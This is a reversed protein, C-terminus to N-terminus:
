NPSPSTPLGMQARLAQWQQTIAPEHSLDAARRRALNLASNAYNAKRLASKKQAAQRSSADASPM